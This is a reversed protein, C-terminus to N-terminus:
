NKRVNRLLFLVTLRSLPRVHNLKLTGISASLFLILSFSLTMSYFSSFFNFIGKPIVLAMFTRHGNMKLFCFSHYVFVDDMGHQFHRM